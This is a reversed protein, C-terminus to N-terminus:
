DLPKNFGKNTEDKNNRTISITRKTAGNILPIPKDAENITIIFPVEAPPAAPM